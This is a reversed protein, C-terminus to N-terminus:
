INLEYYRFGGRVLGRLSQQVKLDATLLVLSASPKGMKSGMCYDQWLRPFIKDDSGTESQQLPKALGAAFM